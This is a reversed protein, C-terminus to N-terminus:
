LQTTEPAKFHLTKATAINDGTALFHEGGTSFIFDQARDGDVRAIIMTQGIDWGRQHALHTGADLFYGQDSKM